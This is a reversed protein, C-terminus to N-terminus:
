GALSRMIVAAFIGPPASREIDARIKDLPQDAYTVLDMDSFYAAGSRQLSFTGIFAGSVSVLEGHPGPANWLVPPSLDRGAFTLSQTARDITALLFPGGIRARALGALTTAPNTSQLEAELVIAIIEEHCRPEAILLVSFTADIRFFRAAMSADPSRYVHVETSGDRVYTWSKERYFEPVVPRERIRRLQDVIEQSFAVLAKLEDRDRASKTSAAVLTGVIRQGDSLPVCVGSRFNLLRMRRRAAEDSSAYEYFQEDVATKVLPWTDFFFNPIDSAVPRAAVPYEGLCILGSSDMLQVNAWGEIVLAAVRAAEVSLDEATRMERIVAKAQDISAEFERIRAAAGRRLANKLAAVVKRDDAAPDITEDVLASLEAASMDLSGITVVALAAGESGEMMRLTRVVHAANPLQADICLVAFAHLSQGHRVDSFSTCMRLKWGRRRLVAEFRTSLGNDNGLWLFTPDDIPATARALKTPILSVSQLVALNAEESMSLKERALPALVVSRVGGHLFPLALARGLLDPNQIVAPRRRLFLRHLPWRTWSRDAQHFDGHRELILFPEFPRSRLITVSEFLRGPLELFMRCLRPLASADEAAEDLLPLLKQLVGGWGFTSHVDGIVYSQTELRVPVIAIRLGGFEVDAQREALLADLLGPVEAVAGLKVSGDSDQALHFTRAFPENVYLRNGHWVCRPASVDLLADVAQAGALARM